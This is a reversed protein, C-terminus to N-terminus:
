VCRARNTYDIFYTLKLKNANNLNECNVSVSYQPIYLKTKKATYRQEYEGSEWRM